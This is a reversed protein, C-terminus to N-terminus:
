WEGVYRDRVEKGCTKDGMIRKGVRHVRERRGQIMATPGCAMQRGDDVGPTEPVSKSRGQKM